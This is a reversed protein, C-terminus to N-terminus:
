AKTRWVAKMEKPSVFKPKGRRRPKSTILKRFKELFDEKKGPLLLYGERTKKLVAVSGIEERIEAPICLRGKADVKLQVEEVM